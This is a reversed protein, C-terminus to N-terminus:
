AEQKRASRRGSQSWIKLMKVGYRLFFALLQGVTMTLAAEVAIAPHRQQYDVGVQFCHQKVHFNHDILPWIMGIVAHAGGFGLAASAPNEGAWVLDLDLQDIRIKRRLEGAAQCIVPLLERFRSLAGAGRPSEPQKTKEKSRKKRAKGEPNKGPIVQIRLPGAIIKLTFGQPGYAAAGGLRIRSLLWLVVIVAVLVILAKM